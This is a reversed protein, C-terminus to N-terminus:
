RGTRDYEEWRRAERRRIYDIREKVDEWPTSEDCQVGRDDLYALALRKGFTGLDVHCAMPFGHKDLWGQIQSRQHRAESDTMHERSMRSSWIVPRLENEVLWQVFELAGERPPGLKPYAFEALTGDFDILVDRSSQRYRAMKQRHTLAM